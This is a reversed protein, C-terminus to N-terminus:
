KCDWIQVFQDYYRGRISAADETVDIANSCDAYYVVTVKGEVVLYFWRYYRNENMEDYVDFCPFREYTYLVKRGFADVYLGPTETEVSILQDLRSYYRGAAVFGESLFFREKTELPQREEAPQGDEGLIRSVWKLRPSFSHIYDPDFQIQMHEM